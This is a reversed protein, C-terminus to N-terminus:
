VPRRRPSVSGKAIPKVIGFPHVTNQVCGRLPKTAKEFRQASETNVGFEQSFQGLNLSLIVVIRQSFHRQLPALLSDHTNRSSASLIGVNAAALPDPSQPVQQCSM